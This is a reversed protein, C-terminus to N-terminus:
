DEVRLEKFLILDKESLEIYGEKILIAMERNVTERTTGSLEAIQQQTPRNKLKTIVRGDHPVRIGSEEILLMLCTLVRKKTSSMTLSAIHMYARNLKRSQETLFAMFLKSDKSIEDLFDKAKFIIIQCEEEAKVSINSFINENFLQIEGFFDGINLLGLVSEKSNKGEYLLKAQGNTIFFFIDHTDGALIITESNQFSQITALEAFKDLTNENLDEFFNIKPFLDLINQKNKQNQSM